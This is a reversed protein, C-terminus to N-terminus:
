SNVKSINDTISRETLPNSANKSSKLAKTKSHSTCTLKAVLTNALPFLRAEVQGEEKRSHEMFLKPCM